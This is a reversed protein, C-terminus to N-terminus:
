LAFGEFEGPSAIRKPRCIKLLRGFEKLHGEPPPSEARLHSSSQLRALAKLALGGKMMMQRHSRTPQHFCHLGQSQWAKVELVILGVLHVVRVQELELRNGQLKCSEVYFTMGVSVRDLFAKPFRGSLGLVTKAAQLNQGLHFRWM